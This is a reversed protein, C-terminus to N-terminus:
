LSRGGGQFGKSTSMRAAEIVTKDSGWVEKLQLYGHDLVRQGALIQPTSM